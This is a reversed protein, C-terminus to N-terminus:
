AIRQVEGDFLGLLRQFTEMTFISGFALGGQLMAAVALQLEPQLELYAKETRRSIYLIAAGCM